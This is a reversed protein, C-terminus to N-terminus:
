LVNWVIDKWEGFCLERPGDPLDLNVRFVYELIFESVDDAEEIKDFASWDDINQMKRERAV